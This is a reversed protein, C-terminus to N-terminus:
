SFKQADFIQDIQYNALIAPIIKEEWTVIMWDSMAEWLLILSILMSLNFSPHLRLTEKIKITCLLNTNADYRSIFTNISLLM